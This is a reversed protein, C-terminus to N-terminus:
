WRMEDDGLPREGSPPPIMGGAIRGLESEGLNGGPPLVLHVTATSEEHVEISLSEPLALGLEDGIAARPDALLRDRFAEDATAREVLRERLEGMTRMEASM